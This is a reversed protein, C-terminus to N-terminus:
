KLNSILRTVYKLDFPENESVIVFDVNKNYMENKIFANVKREFDLADYGDEEFGAFILLVDENNENFININNVVPLHNSIRVLVGNESEFYLSAKTNTNQNTLATYIETNKM